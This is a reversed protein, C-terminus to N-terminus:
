NQSFEVEYKEIAKKDDCDFLKKIKQPAYYFEVQCKAVHYGDAQFKYTSLFTSSINRRSPFFLDRYGNTKVKKIYYKEGQERLLVKYRNGEKKMVWIPITSVDGFTGKGEVFIESIGDNNLDIRQAIKIYDSCDGGRNADIIQEKIDEDKKLEQWIKSLDQNTCTSTEKEADVEPEIDVPMVTPKAFVDASSPSDSIIESNTSKCNLINLFLVVLFIKIVADKM